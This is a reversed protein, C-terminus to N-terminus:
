SIAHYYVAFYHCTSGALVFLHWIAHHFRLRKWTYFILGFSDSGFPFFPVPQKKVKRPWGKARITSGLGMDLYSGENQEQKSM